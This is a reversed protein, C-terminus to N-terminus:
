TVILDDVELTADQAEIISRLQRGPPQHASALSELSIADGRAHRQHLAVEELRNRRSSVEVDQLPDDV